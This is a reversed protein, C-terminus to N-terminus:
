PGPSGFLDTNSFMASFAPRHKKLPSPHEEFGSTDSSALYTVKTVRAVLRTARGASVSGPAVSQPLLGSRPQSIRTTSRAAVDFAPPGWCTLSGGGTTSPDPCNTM